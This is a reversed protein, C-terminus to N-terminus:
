LDTEGILAMEGLLKLSESTYGRLLNALVRLIQFVVM